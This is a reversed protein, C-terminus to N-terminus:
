SNAAYPDQTSILAIGNYQIVNAGSTLVTLLEWRDNQPVWTISTSVDRNFIQVMSDMHVLPTLYTNIDDSTTFPITNIGNAGLTRIDVGLYSALKNDTLPRVDNYFINVVRDDNLMSQKTIAPLWLSCSNEMVNVGQNELYSLAQAMKGENMGTNVGVTYPVTYIGGFGTSTYLANIKIYDVMRAAALAHLKAHDVIKDYAFLTKEGGGIVTKLAYNYPIIMVNTPNVPTVPIDTPAYTQSTMEIIDSVPVNTAEGTTGHREEITDALYQANQYKITVETDFLQSATALDIQDAM